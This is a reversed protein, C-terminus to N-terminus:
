TVSRFPQCVSQSDGAERDGRLGRVHHARQLSTRTTAGNRAGGRRVDLSPLRPLERDLLVQVVVVTVRGVGTHELDVQGRIASLSEKEDRGERIVRRGRAGDVCQVEGRGAEEGTRTARTHPM